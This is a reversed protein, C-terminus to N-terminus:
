NAIRNEGTKYDIKIGPQMNYLYINFCIGVGNDEVSFAELIVGSAVLDNAKFKPTVKYLVHNETHKCYEVIKNEFYLMQKVNLYRTGTILNKPNANQGSLQWAILHCRNYLYGGSICDYKVSKWGSPVVHGISGRKKSPFKECCVCAFAERCRGLTDLETFYDYNEYDSYKFYPMNNNLIIGDFGQYFSFFEDNNKLKEEGIYNLKYTSNNEKKM